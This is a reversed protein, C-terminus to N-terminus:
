QQRGSHGIVRSAGRGRPDSAPVWEGENEWIVQVNGFDWDHPEARYGRDGLGSITADPLPRSVSYTVLDPPLLQHHFRTADAAALPTMGHDLINM